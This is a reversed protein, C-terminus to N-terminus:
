PKTKLNSVRGLWRRRKAGIENAATQRRKLEDFRVATEKRQVALHGQECSAIKMRHSWILLRFSRKAGVPM